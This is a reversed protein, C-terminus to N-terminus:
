MQKDVNAQFSNSNVRGERGLIKEFLGSVVAAVMTLKHGM